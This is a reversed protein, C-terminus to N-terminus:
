IMLKDRIATLCVARRGIQWRNNEQSWTIIPPMGAGSLRADMESVLRAVDAESGTGTSGLTATSALPHSSSRTVSRDSSRERLKERQVAVQETILSQREDQDQADVREGELQVEREQESQPVPTDTYFRSLKRLVVFNEVQMAQVVGKLRTNEAELDSVRCLDASEKDGLAENEKKLAEERELARTLMEEAREARQTPEEVLLQAEKRLRTELEAVKRLEAQRMREAERAREREVSASGETGAELVTQLLSLTLLM